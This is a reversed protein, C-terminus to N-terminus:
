YYYEKLKNYPPIFKDYKAYEIWGNDEFENLIEEYKKINDKFKDEINKLIKNIADKCEKYTGYYLVNNQDVIRKWKFGEYNYVNELLKLHKNNDRFKNYDNESFIKNNIMIKYLEKLTMKFGLLDLIQSAKDESGIYNIQNDKTCVDKQNNKDIIAQKIDLGIDYILYRLVNIIQSFDNDNTDNVFVPLMIILKKNLNKGDIDLKDPRTGRGISQIIDKASLKPDSFTIYDLDKFDWGMDLKKVTYIISKKTKKYLDLNMFEYDLKINKIKENVKINNNGIVLFPKIDTFNTKYLKYHYNFLSFANSNKSHFCLGYNKNLKKFNNLIYNILNVKDKEQNEFIYPIIPCLWKQNILEKIKIPQYLEGFISKNLKVIDQNPSASTFFRYNISDKDELWFNISESESDLWTEEIGWHAEDFWVFINKFGLNKILGYLIAQSQICCSIIIKNHQLYLEKINKNESFNIPYYKNKIQKLCKNSINQSNIKTRPSFCIIIDPQIRNLLEFTIFTKGAGTALELYIKNLTIIKEFCYKIIIDQYDRVIINQNDKYEYDWSRKQEKELEKYYDSYNTDKPCDELNVEKFKINNENFFQELVKHNVDPYKYWEQGGEHYLYKWNLNIFTQQFINDIEYCTVKADIIHYLKTYKLNYFMGTQYTQLRLYPHKTSGIKISQNLKKMKYDLIYIYDNM